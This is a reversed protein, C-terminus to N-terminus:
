LILLVFPSPLVASPEKWIAEEREM